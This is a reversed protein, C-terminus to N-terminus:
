WQSVPEKESPQVHKDLGFVVLTNRRGAFLGEVPYGICVGIPVASKYHFGVVLVYARVEDIAKLKGLGDNTCPYRENGISLVLNEGAVL